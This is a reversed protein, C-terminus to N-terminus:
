EKKLRPAPHHHITLVVGGVPIKNKNGRQLKDTVTSKDKSHLVCVICVDRLRLLRDAASEIGPGDLGYRTAIGVSSNKGGARDNGVLFFIDIFIAPNHRV